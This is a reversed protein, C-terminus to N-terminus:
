KPLSRKGARRVPRNAICVTSLGCEDPLVSKNRRVKRTGQRLGGTAGRRTGSVRHSKKLTIGLQRLRKWIAHRGVKLASSIEALTADANGGVYDALKQPDLKRWTGWSKKAELAGKEEAELYRYVTKRGVKFLAAAEAKGGGGRVFGVIRERLDIGYAKM